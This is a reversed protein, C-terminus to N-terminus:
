LVYHRCNGRLLLLNNRYFTLSETLNSNSNDEFAFNRVMKWDSDPLAELHTADDEDDEIEDRELACFFVDVDCLPVRSLSDLM